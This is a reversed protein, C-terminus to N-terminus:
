ETTLFNPRRPRNKCQWHGSISWLVKKKSEVKNPILISCSKHMGFYFWILAIRCFSFNKHFNWSISLSSWFNESSNPLWNCSRLYTIMIMRWTKLPAESNSSVHWLKSWKVVSNPITILLILFDTNQLKWMPPRTLQLILYNSSLKKHKWFM